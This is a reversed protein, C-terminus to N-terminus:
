KIRWIRDGHQKFVFPLAGRRCSSVSGRSVGKPIRVSDGVDMKRMAVLLPSARNGCGQKRETPMPIDTQISLTTM